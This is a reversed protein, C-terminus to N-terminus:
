YLKGPCAVSFVGHPQDGYLGIGKAVDWMGDPCGYVLELVCVLFDGGDVLGM